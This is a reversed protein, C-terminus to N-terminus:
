PRSRRLLMPLGILSILALSSPEPVASTAFSVSFDDVGLGAQTATTDSDYSWRFAIFQGETASVDITAGSFITRNAGVNGDLKGNSGSKLATFDLADFDTWGTEDNIGFSGADYSSLVKYQFNMTDLTQARFWQEGTYGITASSVSLGAGVEFVVGFSASNGLTGLDGEMLVGLTRDTSNSTSSGMNGFRITNSSFEGIYDKDNRDGNGDIRVQRTWGAYTSDNSWSWAIPVGTGASAVETAYSPTNFDQSYNHTGVSNITIAAELVPMAALCAALLLQPLLPKMLRKRFKELLCSPRSRFEIEIRRVPRCKEFNPRGLISEAGFRKCCIVPPM